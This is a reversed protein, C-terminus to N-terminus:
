GEVFVPPFGHYQGAAVLVAPVWLGNPLTDDSVLNKMEVVASFGGPFLSCNYNVGGSQSQVQASFMGGGSAPPPPPPSPPVPPVGPTVPQQNQIYTIPDPTTGDPNTNTTITLPPDEGAPGLKVPSTIEIPEESNFIAAIEQALAQAGMRNWNTRLLRPVQKAWIGMAVEIKSVGEL